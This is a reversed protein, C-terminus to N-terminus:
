KKNLYNELNKISHLLDDKYKSNSTNVERQKLRSLISSISKNASIIYRDKLLIPKGNLMGKIEQENMWGLESLSM